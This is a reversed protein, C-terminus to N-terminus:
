EYCNKEGGKLALVQNEGTPTLLSYAGTNVLAGTPHFVNSEDKEDKEDEATISSLVFATTVVVSCLPDPLLCSFHQIDFKESYKKIDM